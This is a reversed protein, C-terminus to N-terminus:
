PQVKNKEAAKEKKKFFGRVLFNHQLAEMTEDLKHTSSQLNVMTMKIHNATATDHLLTGVPGNNDNLSQTTTNLNNAIKNATFTAQKLQTSAAKLSATKSM